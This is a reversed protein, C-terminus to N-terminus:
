HGAYWDYGREAWFDAPRVATFRITGIRKLSKIGYKIPIVLRLPAGHDSTLPAGAMEYCLLTQPHLASAIDLGVYYGGDPTELAVYGALNAAGKHEGSRTALGAEAALDSLRAGACNVVTSWGEICKLETTMEVRPLARIDALALSLAPRDRAAGEVRLRWSKPDLGSELGITGNVRPMRALSRSFSPARRDSRFAACAVRENFELVRRLPWPLGDEPSRTTLWHWGGWGALVAAGSWAFGRRSLRRLGHQWEDAGPWREPRLEDPGSM